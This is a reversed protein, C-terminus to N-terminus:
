GKKAWGVINIYVDNYDDDIKDELCFDYVYGIKRARQDNIAGSTFSSKIESSENITITLGPTGDCDHVRSGQGILQLKANSDTKNVNFYETNGVKLSVNVTNACQTSVNWALFYGKPFQELEYTVTKSM